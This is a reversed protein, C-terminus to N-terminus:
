TNLVHVWSMDAPRPSFCHRIACAYMLVHQDMGAVVCLRWCTVCMDCFLTICRQHTYLKEGMSTNEGQPFIHVTTNPHHRSPADEKCEQSQTKVVM